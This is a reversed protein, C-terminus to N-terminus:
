PFWVRDLRWWGAVALSGAIVFLGRYFRRYTRAAGEERVIRSFLAGLTLLHVSGAAVLPAALEAPWWDRWWAAAMMLYFALFSSASLLSAARRGRRVAVTHLGARRDADFDVVVHNFHGAVFLLGLGISAVITVASLRGGAAGVWFFLIAGLFHLVTPLGSREKGGLRKNSYLAGLALTALAAGASAPHYQWLAALSVLALALALPVMTAPSLTGAVVPHKRLRRNWHDYRRGEFANYAYASAAACVSGIALVGLEGVALGGGVPSPHTLVFGSGPFIMMLVVEGPRLSRWLAGIQQVWARVSHDMGRTVAAVVCVALLGVGGTVPIKAIRWAYLGEHVLLALYALVPLTVGDPLAVKERRAVLWHLGWSMLGGILIWAVFNQMPVGFYFGGGIYFWGGRHLHNPDAILDYALLLLSTLGARAILGLGLPRSERCRGMISETTAFALYSLSTWVAPVLVPVLGFVKLGFEPSYQYRGFVAGTLVGVTEAALSTLFAVALFCCLTGSTMRRRGSVIAFLGAALAFSAARWSYPRGGDSLGSIRALWFAALLTLLVALALSELERFLATAGGLPRGAASQRDAMEAM